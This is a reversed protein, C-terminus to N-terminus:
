DISQLADILKAPLILGRRGAIPDDGHATEHGAVRAYWSITGDGYFGVEIFRHPRVWQFMVEGDGPAYVQDPAPVTWPLQLLLRKADSVADQSPATGGMGDWDPRRAEYTDILRRLAILDRFRERATVAALDQIVTKIAGVLEPRHLM